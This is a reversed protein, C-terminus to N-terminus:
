TFLGLRNNGDARGTSPNLGTNGNRHNWPERLRVSCDLRDSNRGISGGVKIYTLNLHGLVNRGDLPLNVIRWQVNTLASFHYELRGSLAACRWQHKNPIEITSVAKLVFRGALRNTVFESLRSRELHGQGHLVDVPKFGWPNPRQVNGNVGLWAVKKDHRRGRRIREALSAVM